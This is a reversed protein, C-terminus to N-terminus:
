PGPDLRRYIVTAPADTRESIRDFLTQPKPRDRHQGFCSSTVTKFSM